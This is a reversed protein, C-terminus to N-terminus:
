LRDLHISYVRAFMPCSPRLKPGAPSPPYIANWDPPACTAHDNALSKRACACNLFMGSLIPISLPGTRGLLCLGTTPPTTNRASEIEEAAGTPPIATVDSKQPINHGSCLVPQRFSSLSSVEKRIRWGWGM